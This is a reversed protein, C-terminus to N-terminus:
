IINRRASSPTFVRIHQKASVKGVPVFTAKSVARWDVSRPVKKRASKATLVSPRMMRRLHKEIREPDRTFFVQMAHGQRDFRSGIKITSAEVIHAYETEGSVQRSGDFRLFTVLSGDEAVLTREDDATELRIFSEVPKRLATQFPILFKLLFSM